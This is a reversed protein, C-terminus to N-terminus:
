DKRVVQGSSMSSVDIRGERLLETCRKLGSSTLACWHGDIRVLQSVERGTRAQIMLRLNEVAEVFQDLEADTEEFSPDRRHTLAWAGALVIFVFAIVLTAIVPGNITNM